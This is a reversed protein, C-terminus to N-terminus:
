CDVIVEEIIARVMPEQHENMGYGVTDMYCEIMVDEVKVGLAKAIIFRIDSKDLRTIIRM